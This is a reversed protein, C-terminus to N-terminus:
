PAVERWVPRKFTLAAPYNLLLEPSVTFSEAPENRNEIELDRSLTVGGIAVVSGLVNLRSAGAGTTFQGDCYFIGTISPSGIASTVAPAVNINGSAIVMFFENRPNYTMNGSITLDGDVFLIVRRNAPLTVASTINMNGTHRYWYYGDGTTAGGANFANGAVTAGPDTPTISVPILTEFADYDPQRGTFPSQAVWNTSSITGSGSQITSGSNGMAIGPFGGLGSEIMENLADPVNSIVNGQTIVHGNNAQWWPSVACAALDVEKPESWGGATCQTLSSGQITSYYRFAGLNATTYQCVGSAVTPDCTPGFWATGLRAQSDYILPGTVPDDRRVQLRYHTAGTVPAWEWTISGDTATLSSPCVQTPPDHPTPIGCLWTIVRVGVTATCTQGTILRGTMTLTRWGPVVGQVSMTYPAIVKFAPPVVAFRTPDSSTYMVQQALGGNYVNMVPTFTTTDNVVVSVPSSAARITCYPIPGTVNISVVDEITEETNANTCRLRVLSSVPGVNSALTGSLAKAGAWGIPASTAIGTCSTANNTTWTITIPSNVPLTLPGDSGNVKVDVSQPPLSNVVTVATTTSCAERTVGSPDRTLIAARIITPGGNAMGIINGTYSTTQEPEVTAISTNSSTFRAGTLPRTGGTQTVVPAFPMITGREITIAGPSTATCTAPSPCTCAPGELGSACGSCNSGPLAIPPRCAANCGLGESYRCSPYGTESISYACGPTYSGKPTCCLCGAGCSGAGNDRGVEGCNSIGSFPSGSTCTGVTGGPPPPGVPCDAACTANTEGSECSGNGCVTTAPPIGSPSGCSGSVYNCTNYNNYCIGFNYGCSKQVTGATCRMTGGCSCANTIPDQTCGPGSNCTWALPAQCCTITDVACLQAQAIKPSVSYLVVLCFLAGIVKLFTKM